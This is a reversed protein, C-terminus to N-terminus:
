KWSNIVFEAFDFDAQTDINVANRSSVCVFESKALNPVFKKNNKFTEVRVAYYSGDRRFVPPMDQARTGIPFQDHLVPTIEKSTTNQYYMYAPHSSDERTVSFISKIEPKQILIDQIRRFDAGVRFPATPQFLHLVEYRKELSEEMKGLADLCVDVTSSDDCALSPERNILTFNYKKALELVDDDDSTVVVDANKMSVNKKIFDFTYEILPRGGLELLSKRPLRKSGKRAPVIVLDAPM